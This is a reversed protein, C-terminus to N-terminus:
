SNLKEKLGLVGFFKPGNSPEQLIFLFYGYDYHQYYLITPQIVKLWHDLEEPSCNGLVYIPTTPIFLRLHEKM